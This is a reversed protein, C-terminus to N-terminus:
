SYVIAVRADLNLRCTILVIPMAYAVRGACVLRDISLLISGSTVTHDGQVQSDIAASM